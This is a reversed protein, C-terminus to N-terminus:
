GNNHVLNKGDQLKPAKLDANAKGKRLKEEATVAAEICVPPDLLRANNTIFAM